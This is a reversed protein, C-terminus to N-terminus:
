RVGPERTAVARFQILLAVDRCARLAPSPLPLPQCLAGNHSLGASTGSIRLAAQEDQWAAPNRDSGEM